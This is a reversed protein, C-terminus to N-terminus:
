HLWALTFVQAAGRSGVSLFLQPLALSIARCIFFKGCLGTIWAQDWIGRLRLLSSVGVVLERVEVYAKHCGCGCAPVLYTNKIQTHYRWKYNGHQPPLGFCYASGKPESAM